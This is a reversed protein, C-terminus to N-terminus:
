PTGQLKIHFLSFSNPSYVLFMKDNKLLVTGCILPHGLEELFLQGARFMHWM